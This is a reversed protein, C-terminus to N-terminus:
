SVLMDGPMTVVTLPMFSNITPPVSPVKWASLTLVPSCTHSNSTLLRAIRVPATTLPVVAKMVWLSSFRSVDLHAHEGRKVDAAFPASVRSLSVLHNLWPNWPPKAEGTM